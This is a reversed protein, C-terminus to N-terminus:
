SEKNANNTSGGRKLLISVAEVKMWGYLGLILISALIAIALLIGFASWSSGGQWWQFGIIRNASIILAAGAATALIVKLFTQLTDGSVRFDSLRRIM